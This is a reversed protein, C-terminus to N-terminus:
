HGTRFAQAVDVFPDVEGLEGELDGPLLPTGKGAANPYGLVYVFGGGLRSALNQQERQLALQAPSHVFPDELANTLALLDLREFT